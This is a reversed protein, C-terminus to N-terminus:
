KTSGLLSIENIFAGDTDGWSNHIQFKLYRVKPVDVPFECEEGALM